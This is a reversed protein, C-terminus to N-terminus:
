RRSGSRDLRLGRPRCGACTPPQNGRELGRRTVAAGVLLAVGLCSLYSYRDAVLQPGNHVIGSVPALTLGYVLWLRGAGGAVIAARAGARDDTRRRLAGPGPLAPEDARGARAARVDALPAAAGTDELCLLRHQLAGDGRAGHASVDVVVHAGGQRDRGAGLDGRGRDGSVLYPLKELLVRRWSGRARRLPYVDLVLLVLPLSM